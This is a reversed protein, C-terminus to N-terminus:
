LRELIWSNIISIMQHSEKEQFLEHMAEAFVILSKDESAVSKFFQQAAQPYVVSDKSAIFMLLPLNFASQEVKLREIMRILELYLGPSIM